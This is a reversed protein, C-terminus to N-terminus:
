VISLNSLNTTSLTVRLLGPVGLKYTTLTEKLGEKSNSAVGPYINELEKVINNLVKHTKGYHQSGRFFMGSHKLYLMM